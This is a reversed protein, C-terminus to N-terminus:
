DYLKKRYEIIDSLIQREQRRTQDILRKKTAGDMNERPQALVFRRYDRLKKLARDKNRILPGYQIMKSNEKAFENVRKRDYFMRNDPKQMKNFTNVITKVQEKMEYYDSVERNGFERVVFPTTGSIKTIIERLSREPRDYDLM